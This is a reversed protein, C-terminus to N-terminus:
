DCQQSGSNSDGEIISRIGESEITKMLEDLAAQDTAFEDSWVTSTGRQDVAELIWQSDEGRYIEVQLTLGDREITRSLPSDVIEPEPM